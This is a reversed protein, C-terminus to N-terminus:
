NPKLPSSRAYLLSTVYSFQMGFSLDTPYRVSRAYQVLKQITRTSLVRRRQLSKKRKIKGRFGRLEERTSVGARYNGERLISRWEYNLQTSRSHLPTNHLMTSDTINGLNFHFKSMTHCFSVNDRSVMSSMFCFCYTIAHIYYFISLQSLQYQVKRQFFM